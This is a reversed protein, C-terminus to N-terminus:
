RLSEMVSSRIYASVKTSGPGELLTVLQLLPGFAAGLLRLTGLVIVAGILAFVSIIRITAAPPSEVQSELMSLMKDVRM